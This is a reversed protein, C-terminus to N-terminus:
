GAAVLRLHALAAAGGALVVLVLRGRPLRSANEGVFAPAALVHALIDGAGAVAHAGVTWRTRTEFLMTLGSM